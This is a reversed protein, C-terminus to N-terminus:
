LELEGTFGAPLTLLQRLPEDGHKLLYTFFNMEREQPHAHPLLHKKLRSLQGTRTEETRALALVTKKQLQALRALTRKRAREATPILTPDLEAFNELLASFDNEISQLAADSLAAAKRERAIAQGLAEEPNNQIEQVSTDFRRLIRAVNPELWTVSLRPWILPQRLGHSEYVGRLQAGYAIEGNGVVFARTPLLKDQVVPRLGAAPTLVTPDARLLEALQNATYTENSQETYFLYGEKQEKCKLLHRGDRTELFLNTAGEPRRLQPHFGLASLEAAAEEIKESSLLPRKIEDLLTPVMLHALSPHLPDLLILGDPLVPSAGLLGHILRAFVASYTLVSDKPATMAETWLVRVRAKYETPAAFQDLLALVEETWRWEIRGVPVGMPLDLHLHHLTEEMDLLTTSAVEAADHDQSAIWYVPLVPADESSLQRALLVADAAKHISYSPGTLLGAQQGTVVVGSRPHALDKLSEPAPLGLSAYYSELANVLAVRDIDPRLNNDPPQFFQQLEGSQYASAITVHTNSQSIQQVPLLMAHAWYCLGM